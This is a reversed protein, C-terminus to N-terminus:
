KFSIKVSSTSKKVPPNITIIEGTDEHVVTMSKSLAKLFKEREKIKLDLETKQSNLINLEYDNCWTFDYSTGTEALEIKAGYKEFSKQGYTEAEKRALPDLIESMEKILAELAKLKLKVDLPNLEGENIQLIIADSAQKIAVKSLGVINLVSDGSM